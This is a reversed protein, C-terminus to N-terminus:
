RTDINSQKKRYCRDVYHTRIESQAESRPIRKSSSFYLGM